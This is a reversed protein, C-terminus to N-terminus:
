GDNWVFALKGNDTIGFPQYSGEVALLAFPGLKAVEPSVALVQVPYDGDEDQEADIVEDDHAGGILLIKM